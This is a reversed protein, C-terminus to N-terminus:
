LKIVKMASLNAEGVTSEDTATFIVQEASEPEIRSLVEHRHTEDLESFIDDLLLVPRSGTKEKFYGIEGLKLEFVALREQGRSGFLALNRIEGRGNTDGSFCFDDRHPGILSVGAAIETEKFIALREKSIESILYDFVVRTVNKALFAFYERRTKQVTTGYELMKENWLDLHEPSAIGEQIQSLLSNKQKRIKEYGSLAERYERSVQSAVSNLYRRRVEPSGNVLDLNAPNFEVSKLEGVLQNLNRKVGNVKAVKTLRREPSVTLTLDLNEEEGKESSITGVVKAFEAGFRIVEEEKTARNSDGSALLYIAELINSKGVGNPGVILTRTPSFEVDFSEFNRFNKLILNKIRMVVSGMAMRVHMGEGDDQPRTGEDDQPRRVSAQRRLCPDLVLNKEPQAPDSHRSLTM